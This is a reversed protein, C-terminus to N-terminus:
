KPMRFEFPKWYYRMSGPPFRWREKVVKLAADDLIEYGSTKQVKASTVAGSSDVTFEIIATGEYRNRQAYGPYAPDPYSGGAM